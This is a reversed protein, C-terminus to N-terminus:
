MVYHIFVLVKICVKGGRKCGLMCSFLFLHMCLMGKGNGVTVSALAHRIYTNAKSAFEFEYYERGDLERQM